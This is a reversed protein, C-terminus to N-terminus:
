GAHVHGHADVVCPVKVVPAAVKVDLYV